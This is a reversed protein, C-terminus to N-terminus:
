DVLTSGGPRPGVGQPVPVASSTYNANIILSPAGKLQMSKAVIVTWASDRAIDDSGDVILTANPVYIVGLLSEVNDSSIIFDQTNTRTAAMVIGAYAGSRRGELKVLSNDDFVFKSALDFMLVVDDGRLTANEKVELAGAIFWHEGAELYLEATGGVIVGGCHIGPHLSHYGSTLVMGMTGRAGGVAGRVNGNCNSPPTLLMDAFPDKIPVADTGPAPNIMGTASTVAQTMSAAISGGEVDIDHNSHVLCAPASLRASDKVNLLKAGSDGSVLVCLPVLGVTTAKAEAIFNWGGPPLMNGFFSQRNGDLRVKIIRQTKTEEVTIDATVTPADPWDAVHGDVFTEARAIAAKDDIALGLEWAGALAAADAVDQLRGKSSHVNSLDIAGVGLLIVAPAALAFKLAIVGREDGLLRSLLAAAKVLHRNPTM